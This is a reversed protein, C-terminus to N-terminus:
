RFMRDRAFPDAAYATALQEGSGNREEGLSCFNEQPHLVDEFAQLLGMMTGNDAWTKQQIQFIWDLIAASSTCDKLSVTYGDRHDLTLHKTNM